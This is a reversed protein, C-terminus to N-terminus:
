RWDVLIVLVALSCESEIDNDASWGGEYESEAEEEEKVHPPM